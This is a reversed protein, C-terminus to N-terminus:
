EEKLNLDLGGEGGGEWFGVVAEGITGPNLVKNGEAVSGQVNVLGIHVGSEAFALHFSQVM